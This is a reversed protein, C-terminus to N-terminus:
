DMDEYQDNNEEEDDSYGTKFYSEEDSSQVGGLGELGLMEAEILVSDLAQVLSEANELTFCLPPMMYVINGHQGEVALLIQQLQFSPKKILTCSILLFLFQVVVVQGM